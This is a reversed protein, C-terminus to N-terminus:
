YIWTQRCTRFPLRRRGYGPVPRHLQVVPHSTIKPAGASGPWTQPDATCAVSYVLHSAEVWREREEDVRIVLCANLSAVHFKRYSRRGSSMGTAEDSAARGSERTAGGGTGGPSRGHLALRTRTACLSPAECTSRTPANRFPHPPPFYGTTRCTSRHDSSSPTSHMYWSKLLCEDPLDMVELFEQAAAFKSPHTTKAHWRAREWGVAYTVRRKM